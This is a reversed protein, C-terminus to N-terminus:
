SRAEEWPWLGARIWLAVLWWIAWLGNAMWYWAYDNTEGWALAYFLAVQGLLAVQLIAPTRRGLGWLFLLCFISGYYRSLVVLIFAGALGHLMAELPDDDSARFLAFLWLGLMLVVALSYIPWQAEWVVRRESKTEWSEAGLEHTFVHALGLRRDGFRHEQGHLKLNDVSQSWADLGGGGIAGLGVWFLAALSFGMVFRKGFWPLQRRRWWRSVAWVGIGVAMFVPFVRVATAYAVLVGATAPRARKVACVAFLLAVLYDHIFLRGVLHHENGYFIALWGASVLAPVLGFSRAVAGFALLLLLLDLGGLLTRGLRDPRILGLVRGIATWTPTANYGRDVFLRRWDSIRMWPQMLHLDATFERWREDSWNGSRELQEPRLPEVRYSGLNRTVAVQGVWKRSGEADAALAQTYLDEYGLEPFYKAGLYYHFFTWPAVRGHSLLQEASWGLSGGLAMGSWLCLALAALRHIWRQAKSTEAAKRSFSWLGWLVAVLVMAAIRWGPWTVPDGRNFLWASVAGVLAVVGAM